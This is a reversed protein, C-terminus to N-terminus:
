PFMFTVGMQMYTNHAYDVFCLPENGINLTYGEDCRENIEPLAPNVGFYNKLEFRLAMWSFPLFRVGVGYDFMPRVTANAFNGDNLKQQIGEISAGLLGYLQFNLDYESVLSIKGYVPAVQAAVGVIWSSHWLDPLEPECTETACEQGANRRRASAGQQRAADAINSEDSVLYGGFGELALWDTFHYAFTAHGGLHRVYKDAYSMDFLAGAEMRGGMPYLKNSILPTGVRPARDIPREEDTPAAASSATKSDSAQTNGDKAADADEAVAAPAFSMLACCAASLSLPLAELKMSVAM